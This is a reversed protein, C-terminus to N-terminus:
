FKITFLRSPFETQMWSIIYYIIYYNYLIDYCALLSRDPWSYQIDNERLVIQNCEYKVCLTLYKFCLSLISTLYAQIIHVFIYM